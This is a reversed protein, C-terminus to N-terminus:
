HLGVIDGVSIVQDRDSRNNFCHHERLELLYESRWRQWLIDLSTNLHKFRKSLHDKTAQPSYDEDSEKHSHDPVSMLRRGVMLHSATLPEDFNDPSVFSLPRLNLIAKIEIIATNLEYDLEKQLYRKVSKVM